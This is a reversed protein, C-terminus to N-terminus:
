SLLKSQFIIFKVNKLKMELRILQAEKLLREHPCHLLIYEFTKGNNEFEISYLEISERQIQHLFDHRVKDVHKKKKNTEKLHKFGIVYDIHKNNENPISTLIQKENENM